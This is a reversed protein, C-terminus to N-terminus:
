RENGRWGSSRVVRQFKAFVYPDHQWGSNLALEDLISSQLRTPGYYHRVRSMADYADAVAIIRALYPIAEGSLRDPYGEGDFREHHHRVALAVAASDELEAALVIREGRVAHTKMIAWDSDSLESAKHLVADPIGIKGADHLGAALRLTRLERESLACARGIDESLELVRDCHRRTAVDREDLAVCVAALSAAIGKFPGTM